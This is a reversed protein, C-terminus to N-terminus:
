MMQLSCVGFSVVNYTEKGDGFCISLSESGVM